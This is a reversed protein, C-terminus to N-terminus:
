TIRRGPGSSTRQGGAIHPASGATALPTRYVSTRATIYLESAGAGGWACNAPLQPCDIVGLPRGDAAFVQVTTACVYLRGERDLKMGDPRGEERMEAFVRGGALSGDAAVEFARVHFRNTDAIYLTREDPSLAIGNPRDFDALLLSLDGKPAVTFVGNYALERQEERIGYPPDTFYIRGDSRVVVDNPSNLRRGEYHSAVAVVAGDPEERSLRRGEHECALLRRERDLTLGNSQGSPERYVTVAGDRVRHIRSNPIDSFLLAGDRWLPGETFGFGDAVVVWDDPPVIAGLGEDFRVHPM